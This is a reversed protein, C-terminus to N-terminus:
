LADSAARATAGRTVRRCSRASSTRRPRLQGGPFGAAAFQAGRALRLGPGRSWARRPWLQQVLGRDVQFGGGARGPALAPQRKGPGKRGLAKTAQAQGGPPARQRQPLRGVHGRQQLLAWGPRSTSSTVTDVVPSRRSRRGPTPFPRGPRTRGRPALPRAPRGPPRRQANRWPDGAPRRCGPRHRAATGSVPRGERRGPRRGPQGVEAGPAVTAVPLWRRCAWSAQRRGSRVEQAQPAVDGGPQGPDRGAAGITTAM